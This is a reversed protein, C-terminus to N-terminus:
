EVIAHAITLAYVNKAGAKLLEIACNNITSGTTYVDDVILVNKNKFANKNKVQFVDKLNEQRQKFNLDAQNKTHKIKILDTTNVQIDILKGLKNALLESQNFGRQKLRITHIPVPVIIDCNFKSKKYLQELYKAFPNCLYKCNNFKFDRIKNAIENEYVFVSRCKYFVMNKSQCRNCYNAMSKIPEGCRDCVKDKIKPLNCDCTACTSTPQNDFIEDGCFICTYNNPYIVDLIKNVVKKIEM